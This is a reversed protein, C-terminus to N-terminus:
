AVKSSHYDVVEDILGYNKAREASMWFDRDFDRQIEEVSKQSHRSLIQAIREKMFLAEQAHIIIDSAQGQVGGGTLPQHILIRSNPLSKRKGAHGAALLVAGMSAALGLCYTNVPCKITQMVDYIALGATVSGGPSNIYFHIDKDPDSSELFFMQAILLNAVADNVETGLFIIRDLLLRSYVDYQREGRETIETVFPNPIHLAQSM